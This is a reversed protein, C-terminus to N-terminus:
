QEERRKYFWVGAAAAAVAAAAGALVFPSVGGSQGAQPEAEVIGPLAEEVAQQPLRTAEELAPKAEPTIEERSVMVEGAESVTIELVGGTVPNDVAESAAFKIGALYSLPYYIRGAEYAPAQASPIVIDDGGNWTIRLTVGQAQRLAEMVDWPLQDYGYANAKVTTGAEAQQIQEKVKEWFDYEGEHGGSPMQNTFAVTFPSFHTASLQIYYHGDEELIEQYRAPDGPHTVKAYTYLAAASGPIPLRFTVTRGGLNANDLPRFSTPDERDTSYLVSVDFVMSSIVPADGSEDVQIDQAKVGVTLYVTDGAEVGELGDLSIQGDFAPAFSDVAQNSSIDDKAQEVAEKGAATQANDAAGSVDPTSPVEVSGSSGLQAFKATIGYKGTFGPATSLAAGEDVTLTDSAKTSLLNGADDYWGVFAYGESPAASIEVQSGVASLGYAPISSSVAGMTEDEPKVTVKVYETQEGNGFSVAFYRVGEMEVTDEVEMHELIFRDMDEKSDMYANYLAVDWDNQTTGSDMVLRTKGKISLLTNQANDFRILAQLPQGDMTIAEITSDEIIVTNELATGWGPNNYINDNIVITNFGYDKDGNFDGNIGRILSNRITFLGKSSWINFAGWAIITSNEVLIDIDESGSDHGANIGYKYGSIISGNLIDVDIHNQNFLAIGREGSWQDESGCQVKTNDLVLHTNDSSGEFCIGRSNVSATTLVSNKLTIELNGPVNGDADAKIQFAQAATAFAAGTATSEQRITLGDAEFAVGDEVIVIPATGGAGEATISVRNMTTDAQIELSYTGALIELDELTIPETVEISQTLTIQQGKQASKLGALDGVEVPASLTVPLDTKETQGASQGITTGSAGPALAGEEALATIGAASLALAGALILSLIRKASNM